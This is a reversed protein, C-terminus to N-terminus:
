SDSGEEDQGDRRIFRELYVAPDDEAPLLAHELVEDIHRVLTIHMKERASAPLEVLDKENDVPILSNTISVRYAALLKEKIGGVPLVRGRLTIEGTMVLDHRVPRRTFASVLATTLTVGASPGEKPISGEPLHIHIDVNDFVESDIGFTDARARMYSLAAQASEQMVDGLQGTLTLNGKGPMLLVEISLVDGGAETWAVGQAIGIEAKDSIIPGPIQPPGLFEAVSRATIRKRHESGEAVKRAIKRAIKAIERELNRVGAEYTYERIISRLAETEFAISQDAVGHQEL